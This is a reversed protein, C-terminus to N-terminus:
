LYRPEVPVGASYPYIRIFGDLDRPRDSEQKYVSLRFLYPLRPRFTVKWGERVPTMSLHTDDSIHLTFRRHRTLSNASQSTYIRADYYGKRATAVAYGMITGPRLSKRPSSVIIIRYIDQAESLVPRDSGTWRMIAIRGGDATPQWLGEIHHLDARDIIEKVKALSDFGEIVTSHDPIFRAFDQAAVYGTASAILLLLIYLRTIM